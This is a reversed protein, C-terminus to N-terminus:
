VALENLRPGFVQKFKLLREVMWGRIEALTEEDDDITGPRVVAIRSARRDDLREWELTEELESQIDAQREQLQDFLEKNWDGNISDIYLNIRARNGRLLIPATGLVNPM